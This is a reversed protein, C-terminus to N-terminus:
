GDVWADKLWWWGTSATGLGHVNDRSGTLTPSFNLPV